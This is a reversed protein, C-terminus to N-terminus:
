DISIYFKKDEHGKQGTYIFGSKTSIGKNKKNLNEVIDGIFFWQGKKISITSSLHGNFSHDISITLIAGFPTLRCKYNLKQKNYNFSAPYNEMTVLSTVRHSQDTSNSTSLNSRKSFKAQHRKVNRETIIKLKLSCMQAESTNEFDSGSKLAYKKSMMEDFIKKRAVTMDLILCHSNKSIIIREDKLILEDFQKKVVELDVGSKFCTPQASLHFPFLQSIFVFKVWNNKM